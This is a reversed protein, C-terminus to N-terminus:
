VWYYIKDKWCDCTDRYFTLGNEKLYEVFVLATQKMEGCLNEDIYTKIQKTM